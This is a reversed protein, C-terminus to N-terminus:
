KGDSKAKPENAARRFATMGAIKREGVVWELVELQATSLPGTHTGHREIIRKLERLGPMAHKAEAGSKKAAVDRGAQKASAKTIKAGGDAAALLVELASDHEDRPTRAIELAHSEQLRGDRVAKLVAPSAQTLKIWHRVAAETVGYSVAVAAYTMGNVDVMRAAQAAKELMTEDKRFTNEAAMKQVSLEDNPAQVICNVVVPPLKEAVNEDSAIRANFVRHRGVVVAFVDGGRDEVIVPEIVGVARISAVMAPDKLHKVRHPQYLADAPDAPTDVGVIVLAHPDFAYLDRRSAGEIKRSAM